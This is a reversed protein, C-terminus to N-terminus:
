KDTEKYKRMKTFYDGIGYRYSRELWKNIEQSRFLVTRGSKYHPIGQFYMWSRVTELKPNGPIRNRLEHIDMWDESPGINGNLIPETKLTLWQDIVDLERVIRGLVEPIMAVSIQEM